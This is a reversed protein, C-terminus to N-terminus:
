GRLGSGVISTSQCAALRANSASSRDPRSCSRGRATLAPGAYVTQAGATVWAFQCKCMAPPRQPHRPRHQLHAADRHAHDRLRGRGPLQVHRGPAPALRRHSGRDHGGYGSRHHHLHGRARRPRSRSPRVGPDRDGGPRGAPIRGPVRAALGIVLGAAVGAMVARVHVLRRWPRAAARIAIDIWSLGPL